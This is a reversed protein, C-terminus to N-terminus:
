RQYWDSTVNFVFSTVHITKRCSIIFAKQVLTTSVLSHAPKFFSKSFTFVVNLFKPGCFFQCPGDEYIIWFILAHHFPSYFPRRGDVPQFLATTSTLLMKWSRNTGNQSHFTGDVAAKKKTSLHFGKDDRGFIIM